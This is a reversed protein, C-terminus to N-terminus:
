LVDMMLDGMVLSCNNALQLLVDEDLGEAAPLADALQKVDEAIAFLRKNIQDLRRIYNEPAPASIVPQYLLVVFLFCLCLAPARMM